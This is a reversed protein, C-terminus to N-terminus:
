VLGNFYNKDIIKKEPKVEECVVYDYVCHFDLRKKKLFEVGDSWDEYSDVNQSPIIDDEKSKSEKSKSGKFFTDWSVQSFM